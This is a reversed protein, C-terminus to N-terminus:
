NNIITAGEIDVELEYVKWNFESNNSEKLVTSISSNDKTTIVLLSPGAGSIFLVANNNECIKKFYDYDNILNKRYPEHLKDEAAGKLLEFDGNYLADSILTARAINSVADELKVEKKVVERAEVTRLEFDPVLVYLKYNNNVEKRSYYVQKNVISTIHGGFLAPAVNDPHGEIDTAYKLIEKKDLKLGSMENAAMLGAIICSASSGLGRSMPIETSVKIEVYPAKLNNKEYLYKFSRYILNREDVEVDKKEFTFTNYLNLAMGQSDYGPGINATTAPVRITVM